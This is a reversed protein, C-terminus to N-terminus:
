TNSVLAALDLIEPVGAVLLVHRGQLLPHDYYLVGSAKPVWEARNYSLHNNTICAELKVVHQQLFSVGSENKYYLFLGQVM